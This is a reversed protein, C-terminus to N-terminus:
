TGAQASEARQCEPCLGVGEVRWRLVQWPGQTLGTGDPTQLHKYESPMSRPDADVV